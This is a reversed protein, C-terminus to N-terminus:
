APDRLGIPAGLVADPIAFADVLAGAEGRVADCLRNVERTIAKCRPSSLRGHEMYFGKDAELESLAYLDRLQALPRQEPTGEAEAVADQFAQLIVRSMHVRAANAAHDQVARFVEFADFGESMGRRFRQAVSATIHGERWRFLDLQHAPDLLDGEDDRGVADGIVQVIQRAFLREIVTEVAQGAVFTVLEVPSLAGFEARYGTLQGKAVLQMLVTNDGEFTTFIDSDAKLAAFRNVSLYGAGGCCERCTQVTATAHWSATAKLGAALSELERREEDPTDPDRFVRDFRRTLEAQAFHLAYTRALLPMLRRQHSRYDLIAVEEGPAPGFQRRRLGYRVAITLASKAVSVSAASVCVRGQVLTGLMTFFRRGSKEIPSTYVGDAGVQGYRDLLAERPVRVGDFWLRGNDVGNLGMKEGCDAIRVGPAPEGDADRIPVVLAHVGHNESGVILQAFVAAMRGDRAANGIYEKHDGETPTQIVFTDDAPDYTATTQLQQVDSGHGAESMAFCGPLELTAIDHLYREHHRETGLHQVAGGWLGFQVGFKVLLSLDGFALTEFAAVNAAPDGEGGYEPPFGGATLGEQALSRAWGSVRERYAETGLGLVPAFEPRSLVARVRARLEAHGPHLRQALREPDAGPEVRDATDTTM